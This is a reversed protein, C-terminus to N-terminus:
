SGGSLMRRFDDQGKGGEAGTGSSTSAAPKVAVSTTNGKSLDLGKKKSGLGARPRARPAFALSSQVSERSSAPLDEETFKLEQNGFIIPEPRLLLKGAEAPNNFEVIAEHKKGFVEVRTVKAYKELTQQLLGEQVNELLNRIRLTRSRRAQADNTGGQKARTDALTVSIRRKKFEQNNVALAASASAADEFEVFAFGKATGKDDLPLRTAKIAGYSQFLKKIDSETVSKALGAVYLERENAAADSREQRRQPDSIYVTLKRGPELARGHLSLAETAATPSTYQVYCFRRTSKYKKSPWRVDFIEGFQGFLERIKADDTDEPFNTVYLTSKWALHVAIEEGHLRKKDKTLAAPVNNRSMFEVTAVLSKDTKTIRVERIKGCDKFLKVLDDDTTGAPLGSVFVTSNERDRKLFAPAKEDLKPRKSAEPEESDEAKRKRDSPRTEEAVDVAMPEASDVAMPETAEATAAVPAAEPVAAAYQQSAALWARQAEEAERARKKDLRGSLERVKDLCSELSEVTGHLYEYDKWQTWIAEPWDFHKNAADNFAKRIEEEEANSILVDLYKTWALYSTKYHKIASKWVEIANQAESPDRSLYFGSLFKELTLQPDGEKSAARVFAIGQQLVEIVTKYGDEDQMNRCEYSARALVIPLIQQLDQQLLSTSFATIYVNAVSESQQADMEEDDKRRADAQTELALIYKAWVEGSGPVSKTARRAISLAAEVDGRQRLTDLYSCWFYRLDDEATKIVQADANEVVSRWRRSAFDAIAREYLANILVFNQKRQRLESAIYNMYSDRSPSSGLKDEHQEKFTWSKAPATRLKSAAVLRAEYEEADYYKTVYSSYSQLTEENGAHPQKLRQLHLSEIHEKLLEREASGPEKEDLRAKEWAIQLNWLEQGKTIHWSGQLAAAGIAARVVDEALLPELEPNTSAFSHLLSFLKIEQILIPISLYDDAAKRFLEQIDLLAELTIHSLDLTTDESGVLDDPLGLHRLKYQLYPLWVEDTAAYFQTLLQVAGDLQDALEPASALQVHRAHLELSYPSESISTLLRSLTELADATSQM